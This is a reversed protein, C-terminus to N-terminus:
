HAPIACNLQAHDTFRRLRRPSLAVDITPWAFIQRRGFDLRQHRRSALAAAVAVAVSCHDQNGIAMSQSDALKAPEFPALDIEGGAEEMNGPQLAPRVVATVVDSLAVARSAEDKFAFEEFLEAVRRIAALGEERTPSESVLPIVPPRMLILETEPDYGEKVLLTGNPRLTPTMIVGAVPRFEKWDGAKELLL